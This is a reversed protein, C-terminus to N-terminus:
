LTFSFNKMLLGPLKKGGLARQFYTDVNPDVDQFDTVELLGEGLIEYLSVDFRMDEIPAVIQGKEVWFCAYRTMGTVRAHPLDSWNLYHLNSLYLGTDLHQLIDKRALSGPAIELARLSEGAAAHNGPVGYEKASRSSVLLRQLEGEKILLLKEPALEGLENFRPTLGLHFDESLSFKPSLTCEKDYLKKFACNGTKYAQYSLAGWSFMSALEAVAAPALYVNYKGPALTKRPRNMLALQEASRQLNAEFENQHWHIGAYCSKVASPGNYLSYDIFFSENAFWHQQGKSNCNGVEISGGAYLGALDHTVAAPAIAGILEEGKLLNGQFLTESHGNNVFPVLYPDPPLVLAEQRAEQLLKRAEILDWEPSGQATFSKKLRRGNKHFVFGIDKQVVSTNQRVKSQNWRIFDTNEGRFDVTMEEDQHLENFLASAVFNLVERPSM